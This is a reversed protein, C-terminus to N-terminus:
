SATITSDGLIPVTNENSDMAYKGQIDYTGPTDTKLRYTYTMQQIGQIEVLKIHNNSDHDGTLIQFEKPVEEEIIYYTDDPGPNIHLNVSIEGSSDAPLVERVVGIQATDDVMDSDNELAEEGCGVM